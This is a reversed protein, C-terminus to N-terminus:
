RGGTPGGPAPDAKVCRCNIRRLNLGFRRLREAEETRGQKMLLEALREGSAEDGTDVRAHLVQAAGDLDGREALREVLRHTFFLSFLQAGPESDDAAYVHLVQAAGDLDGREELLEALRRAAVGDGASTRARLKDM